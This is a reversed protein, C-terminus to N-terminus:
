LETKACISMMKSSPEAVVIIIFSTLANYLYVVFGRLCKNQLM